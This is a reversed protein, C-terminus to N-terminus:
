SRKPPPSQIDSWPAQYLWAYKRFEKMKRAYDVPKLTVTIPIATFTKLYNFFPQAGRSKGAMSKQVLRDLQAFLDTEQTDTICYYVTSGDERIETRVVDFMTGKYRFEKDHKWCLLYNTEATVHVKTLESEPVGQKIQRKIEQKVRQQQVVIVLYYGGLSFALMVVCAIAIIKKLAAFTIKKDAM